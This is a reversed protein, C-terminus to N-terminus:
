FLIPVHSQRRLEACVSHGDMQPMNIDLLVLDVPHTAFYTLAEHGSAAAFVAYGDQKLTMALLKRVAVDDDVILVQTPREIMRLRAAASKADNSIGLVTSKTGSLEYMTSPQEM